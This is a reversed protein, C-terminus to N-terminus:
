PRNLIEDTLRMADEYSLGGKYTDAWDPGVERMIREMKERGEPEIRRRPRAFMKPRLARRASAM